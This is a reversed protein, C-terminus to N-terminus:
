EVVKGDKEDKYKTTDYMKLNQEVLELIRTRSGEHGKPEIGCYHSESTRTTGSYEETYGGYIWLGKIIYWGDHQNLDWHIVM